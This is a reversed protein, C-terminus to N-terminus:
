SSEPRRSLVSRLDGALPGIERRARERAANERIVRERAALAAREIPDVPPTAAVLPPLPRAGSPAFASPPTTRPAMEPQRRIWNRVTALWDAKREGSARFHDLCAEELDPMRPLAWRHKPNGEAWSRLAAREQPSLREPASTM